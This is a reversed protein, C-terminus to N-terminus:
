YAGFRKKAPTRGRVGAGSLSRIVSGLAWLRSPLPRGRGRSAKPREIQAGKISQKKGGERLVYEQSRSWM